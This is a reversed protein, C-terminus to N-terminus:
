HQHGAPMADGTKHDTIQMALFDHIAKVAKPNRSLLLVEAGAPIDMYDYRIESKLRRMVDAGPPNKAHIFEPKDFDGAAFLRAIEKLHSRIQVVSATDKADKAVVRVSGGDKRTVFTHTARAQDFGMAVNGRADIAGQSHMSHDRHQTGGGSSAGDDAAALCFIM